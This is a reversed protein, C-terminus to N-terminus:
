MLVMVTHPQRATPNVIKTNVLVDQYLRLGVFTCVNTLDLHFL